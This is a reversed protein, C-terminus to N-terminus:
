QAEKSHARGRAPLGEGRREHFAAVRNRGAEKAMYLAADAADFLKDWTAFESDAVSAYGVSVTLARDNAHAAQVTARVREAILAAAEADAGPLIVCFEDGGYRCSLVPKRTNRRLATGVLKIAEDGVSHGHRDNYAKFYDIDIVLLSLHKHAERALAFEIPLRDDFLRRNGLLTLPDTRSQHKLETMRSSLTMSLLIMELLAGVQWSHQSTFTHPVLGFNKLLFVISGALFAGWAVVYFRAPRSGALLSVIGLTIMFVVSVLILFTVPRILVAYPLSPTLAIAVLALVQLARAIRELRPTYDRARLITISFQLATVEALCLLIPLVTNGWHPSDPWFYQFALGVNVAMYVGFTAVYGFYALFAQDRVAVFVLGSWVLLMLVCGFYVGYALQERGVEATLENPDLVSLSIDVPGQSAYRLYFTQDSNAPLTVPFLFDRHMVDRSSFPRRDGTAHQSWTGDPRPEYLELLDILPYDQRLYIMRPEDGPNRLTFRVWWASASFGVNDKEPSGAVFGTDVAPKTVAAIDLQGDRDELLQLAGSLSRMHVSQDAPLTTVPAAARAALPALSVLLLAPFLRRSWSIKTADSADDKPGYV